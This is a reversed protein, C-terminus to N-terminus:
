IKIVGVLSLGHIVMNVAIAAILLSFVRSIARLGGVGLFRIIQGSLLFAIWSILLNAVLSLLVIYIAHEQSLFILTTITAPGVVLPTGLPVVAIMEEKIVKTFHGTTMFRISLVILIVGGAVSFTGVSINLVNLIFEGFFLFALGVIAATLMAINIVRNRERVSMEETLSIIVPLNGFADVVIFLPLFTLVFESIFSQM